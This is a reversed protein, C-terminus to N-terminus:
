DVPAVAQEVLDCWLGFLRELHRPNQHLGRQVVLGRVLYLTLEAIDEARPDSTGEEIRVRAMSRLTDIWEQDIARVDDRLTADTRAAIVSELTAYYYAEDRKTLNLQEMFARIPVPPDTPRAMRRASRARLADRNRQLAAILLDNKRPYHHTQAGSSVSAEECIKLTSAGSWGERLIVALTADLLKEKTAEAREQPARQRDPARM